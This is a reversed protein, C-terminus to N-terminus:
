ASRSTSALSRRAAATAPTSSSDPYAMPQAPPESSCPCTRSHAASSTPADVKTGDVSRRSALRCIPTPVRIVIAAM